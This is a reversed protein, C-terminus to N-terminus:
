LKGVTSNKSVNMSSIALREFSFRQREDMMVLTVNGDLETINSSEHTARYCEPIVDETQNQVHKVLQIMDIIAVSMNFRHMSEMAFGFFTMLWLVHICSICDRSQPPEFDIQNEIVTECFVVSANSKKKPKFHEGGGNEGGYGNESFINEISGGGNESAEDDLGSPNMSLLAYTQISNKSREM